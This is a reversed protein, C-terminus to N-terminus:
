EIYTKLNQAENWKRLLTAGNWYGWKTKTFTVYNYNINQNKNM